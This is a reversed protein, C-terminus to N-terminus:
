LHITLTSMGLGHLVCHRVKQFDKPPLPTTQYVRKGNRDKPLRLLDVRHWGVACVMDGKLWRTVNGWEPPMQFSVDIECHYPMEKGAKPPTTSLPVVTCLGVRNQIAPSLVVALRRKVMEPAVFGPEFNVMVLSGQVPHYTLAM